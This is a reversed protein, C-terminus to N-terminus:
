LSQGERFVLLDGSHQKTESGNGNGAQAREVVLGSDLLLRRIQRADTGVWSAM